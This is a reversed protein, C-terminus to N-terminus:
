TAVDQARARIASQFEEIIGRWGPLRDAVEEIRFPTEDDRTVTCTPMKRTTGRRVKGGFLRALRQNYDEALDRDVTWYSADTWIEGSRKIYGLNVPRGEPQDWKLLLSAKYEVRVDVAAVDDLFRRLKSPIDPSHEQMAEFFEHSSITSRRSPKRVEREGTGEDTVGGDTRITFRPVDVTKVLTRPMVLYENVTGRRHLAYVPIEVLAFTFHFNAHAQLGAVLQDTAPRIDDGVILVVIRGDRLNRKVRDAFVSEPPPDAEDVLSYLGQPCEAGDFDAKKVAAELADYDLRFLETAYELAQAVVTRHAEPNGWLKVEVVVLNGEPTVFLNDVFGVRLPLEMCVPVLIGLAPEIQDM